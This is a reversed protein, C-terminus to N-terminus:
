IKASESDPQDAAADFNEELWRLEDAQNEIRVATSACGQTDFTSSLARRNRMKTM